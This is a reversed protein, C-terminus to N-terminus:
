ENSVEGKQIIFAWDDDEKIEVYSVTSDPDTTPEGEPTLGPTIHVYDGTTNSNLNPFFNIKALKIIGSTDYGGSNNITTRPKKVPGFIYGKMTFNLTWIIIRREDVGGEYSDESSVNNIVTPIDLKVDMDSILNVTTTWEPTFYPLIQELIRTGDEANKVTVYLSFDFNYPVPNYMYKIGDNDPNAKIYGKNTTILKRSPDYSMGTMEFAMRPVNIEFPRNLLPDSDLRLLTKQKPGYTIPIKLTEAVRGDNLTRNIYIDNFLTGFLTVYKRLSKHYFVQGFM